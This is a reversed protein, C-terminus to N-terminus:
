RAKRFRLGCHVDFKSAMKRSKSPRKAEMQQGNAGELDGFHSGFHLGFAIKSGIAVQSGMERWKPELKRGKQSWNAAKQRGKRIMQADNKSGRAENSRLSEKPKAHLNERLARGGHEREAPEILGWTM